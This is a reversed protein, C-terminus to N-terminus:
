IGKKRTLYNLRKELDCHDVSESLYKEIGYQISIRKLMNKIVNKM